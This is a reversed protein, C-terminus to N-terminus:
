AGRLAMVISMVMVISGGKNNDPGYSHERRDGSQSLLYRGRRGAAWTQRNSRGGERKTGGTDGTGDTGVM